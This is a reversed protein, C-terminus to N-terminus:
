RRTVDWAIAATILVPVWAYRWATGAHNAAVRAAGAAIGAGTAVSAALLAILGLADAAGNGEDQHTQADHWLYALALAALVSYAALWRGPLFCPILFVIAAPGFLLIDLVVPM